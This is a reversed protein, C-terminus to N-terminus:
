AGGRMMERLKDKNAQIARWGMLSRPNIPGAPNMTQWDSVRGPDHLGRDGQNMSAIDFPQNVLEGDIQGNRMGRYEFWLHEISGGDTDYGIKVLTPFEFEALDEAIEPVLHFTKAARDAMLDTASESFACPGFDKAKQFVSSAKPGSRGFIRRKPPDCLVVRRETHDATDRVEVEKPPGVRDFEAADVADFGPEGMFLGIDTVGPEVHGELTSFAIARIADGSVRERSPNIIDFDYAGLEGLGHTHVWSPTQGDATVAHVCFISEVDLAADHILEDDLAPATWYRMAGPDYFALGDDGMVARGFRMLTKREELVNGGQPKMALLLSMGSRGIEEPEDPALGYAFVLDDTSPAVAKKPCYLYAKGWDPHRLSLGWANREGPDKLRALELGLSQLAVFKDIKPLSTGKYLISGGIRSESRLWDM